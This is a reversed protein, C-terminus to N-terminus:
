RSLKYCGKKSISSLFYVSNEWRYIIPFPVPINFHVTHIPQEVATAKLAQGLPETEVTASDKPTVTVKKGGKSKQRSLLIKIAKGQKDLPVLNSM